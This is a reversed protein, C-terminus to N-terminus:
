YSYNVRLYKWMLYESGVCEYSAEMYSTFDDPCPKTEYLIPDPVGFRCDNRGSCKSDVYDLVDTSCGLNGYNGVIFLSM